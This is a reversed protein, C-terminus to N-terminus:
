IRKSITGYLKLKEIHQKKEREKETHVVLSDVMAKATKTKQKILKKRKKWKSRENRNMEIGNTEIINSQIHTKIIGYLQYDAICMKGSIFKHCHMLIHSM